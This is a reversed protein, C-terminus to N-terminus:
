SSKLAEVPPMGKARRDEDTDRYKLWWRDVGGTEAGPREEAGKNEKKEGAYDGKDDLKLGKKSMFERVAPVLQSFSSVYPIGYRECVIDVNGQRWYRQDCCVIIKGSHAWLGLEMLTVPSVTACDFFYCIVDANTLADLEWEVQSFFDPDERKANVNPDWHGRRPNTITIPLDCLHDVLRQQWQVAAGMEISGATFLSFNGYEPKRPPMCHKFDKHQKLPPSPAPILQNYKDEVDGDLGGPNLPVSDAKCVPCKKFKPSSSDVEEEPKSMNNGGMESSKDTHSASAASDRTMDENVNDRAAAATTGLLTYTNTRTLHRSLQHM